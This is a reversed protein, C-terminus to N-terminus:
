ETVERVSVRARGASQYGETAMIQYDHRGLKMGFAEWADFHNKITIIGSTQKSRRVSWFQTFTRTGEISPQNVRQTTYIDYVGGDSEVMGVPSGGPPRWSGWAEVVYYEILPNRTWGYLALYSNGEPKYDSEYAVVRTAGPKWGTGGVWNNVGNWECSYVGDGELTMTVKGHTDTWFSHFYGDKNGQTSYKLLTGKSMVAEAKGADVSANDASVTDATKGPASGCGALVAVTALVLAGPLWRAYRQM